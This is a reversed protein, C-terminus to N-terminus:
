RPMSLEIMTGKGMESCVTITGKIEEARQQMNILGGRHKLEEENFGIGYDSNKFL